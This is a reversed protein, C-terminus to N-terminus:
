HETSATEPLIEEKENDESDIEKKEKLQKIFESSCAYTPKNEALFWESRIPCDKCPLTGTITCIPVQVLGSPVEWEHNKESALLVNMITHWIPTAGTIGSAVRSMPSNDNNGVWVAVLYKQNFGITLNDRLDNSTGTKVAVEPHDPIVLLSNTGFAPSRANNDRLIDILVYAVRPDLVQEPQCNSSSRQEQKLASETAYVENIRQNTLKNILDEQGVQEVEAIQEVKKGNGCENKELVKGEYNTVQLVPATKV